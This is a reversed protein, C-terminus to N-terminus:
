QRKGFTIRNAHYHTCKFEGGAHQHLFRRVLHKVHTINRGVQNVHNNEETEEFDFGYVGEPGVHKKGIIGTAIDGRADRLIRPLSRVSPFSSFHHM